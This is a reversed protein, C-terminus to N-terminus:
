NIYDSFGCHACGADRHHTHYNLLWIHRASSLKKQAAKSQAMFVEFFFQMPAIKMQIELDIPTFEKNWVQDCFKVHLAVCFRMIASHPLSGNYIFAVMSLSPPIRIRKYQNFIWTMVEDMFGHWNRAEAFMYLDTASSLASYHDDDATVWTLSSEDGPNRATERTNAPGQYLWFSLFKYTHHSVDEDVYHTEGKEDTRAEHQAYFESWNPIKSDLLHEHINVGEESAHFQVRRQDQPSHRTM